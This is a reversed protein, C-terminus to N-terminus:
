CYQEMFGKLDGITPCDLFLSSRVDLKLESRFKEALVLSMLSDVGIQAFTTEDTIESVELGTERAILSVCDGIVGTEAEVKVAVQQVPQTIKIDVVQPPPPAIVDKRAAASPINVRAPQPVSPAHASAVRGGSTFLQDMLVRPVRKFKIQGLMGVVVNDRLIYLDGARVNVDSTPFMRVYSRYKASPSLPEIFRLTGFGPTLYFFDKTNSVDSANMILGALHSVSDIWHPPIHWNGHTEPVLSIDAYAEYEHLVVSDMGRYKDAYDVVNKFLTYALNKSLRNCAGASAMQGLAEIRGSVLHAIRDWEARWNAAEEFFINATAFSLEDRTGNEAVHYWALTMARSSMDLNCELAILQPGSSATKAITAHLVEMNALNMDVKKCSPNMRKFLYEGATYAMDCWISSTAVGCNNMTHGKVSSLFDPHTVDSLTMLQGATQGIEELTIQHVASTRLASSSRMDFADKSKTQGYKLLAKDLTWTGIYQIWYDKANWHYHPLNLLTHAHEYPRYYENWYTEVGLTHLSALTKTITGFNDENKKLTPLVTAGSVHNAIFSACIPHPGIDIWITQPDIIGMAEAEDLAGIFNVPERAARRLYNGNITKGDFVCAGLLPSIVPLNPAKFSINKATQEFLDLMPEMQKTHFAFPLDLPTCKLDRADLTQRIEEIDDRPGSIVTDSRGNRCSVEYKANDGAALKIEESSAKVSLMLHTGAECKSMTYTARQGVLLIADAASIVEAVVLASYEGLSHGIVATPHIGLFAWFRALAIEVVLISLQTVLPSVDSKEISNVIVPIISPYGFRQVLDDLQIVQTRYYPFQEFLQAGIGEYFAGQGTFTFAVSPADLPIPRMSSITDVSKELFQRLQDLSSVATAVRFNHQIRRACTTYALSGLSTSPNKEIYSLLDEINGKLSGKSKASVTVVHTSRPDTGIAQREPSDELLVTTNGGHAGFSNVVAYRSDGKRRPYPTMEMALGANRKELCKRLTPNMETKIGIHPPIMNKQYVLLMKILSAIGAAAEGHGINSKVAGLLLAQDDRRRSSIPAFVECVSECEVSDGSQTGTGHLEIFSVDSPNVAAARMVQNYNDKQAGAHPHTISIAEASHNTAAALIVGLINDNDAEADELRKLVVSGVGDARCYGDANEDWVKCQGTKSLFHANCLGAYNDPDTIVNLGGAVITDAEGAWLATCGAQVAALGSSCATDLNISPGAFGFFYNIRGNAFARVGGPVAYTGLNQSANLERWDDSAQGYFAGVRKSNSSSTRNPVHGAMELAEYATVLALRQMPDTQEAEKPSMNFFGADFLGPSDIFNGFPTQTANETEGSPDYHTNLDFRDAPVHTHTDRREEMIKWFLETDAAGGPMRCSMGVIAVKSDKFHRPQRSGFSLPVWDLLDQRKINVQSLETEIASLLGKFVLTTRFFKVQCSLSQSKSIGDIIGATVKDVYISGTLLETCIEEYLLGSLLSNFPKGTESSILPIQVRKNRSIRPDPKSVVDCIAEKNYLHPAHCLGEYVPLPLHKSHRLKQSRLFIDKLRSPPGSVSISIKDAASIFIKTLETNCTDANYKDIEQQVDKESLGTVVYAWSQPPAAPDRAEVKRSIDDIYVGLRFAVRVSEAGTNTLDHLTRSLSVAAGALLGISLGALVTNEATLDYDIHQGEYHGIIMAVQLACLFASEMSAGLPGLRFQGGDVLTFLDEFPPILERMHQPLRSTEERLVRACNELFTALLTFRRDKSHRHLRRFLDKLDDNPFENSFFIFNTTLGDYSFEDVFDNSSESGTSPTNM